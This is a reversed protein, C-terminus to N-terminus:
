AVEKVKRDEYRPHVAQVDEREACTPCQISEGNEQQVVKYCLWCLSERCIDCYGLGSCGDGCACCVSM